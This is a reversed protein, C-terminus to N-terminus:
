IVPTPTSETTQPVEPVVPAKEARYIITKVFETQKSFKNVAKISISNLGEKLRVSEAFSGDPSLIVKQSNVFVESDLDTKGTIDLIDSSTVLNDPPYSLTLKPAGTFNRYQYYLYGFFFTLSVFVLVIAVFSPTIVLKPPEIFRKPLLQHKDKNDFEFEYERRWLAMIDDVPLDLYECYIKLFGKSHVKGSFVSYDDAELAKIYNQHVKITKYVDDLTLRKKERASKLIAGISRVM